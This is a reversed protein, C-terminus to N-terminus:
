IVVRVLFVILAAALWERYREHSESEERYGTVERSRVFIDDFAHNMEMGTQARYYRGGTREAIDQLTSEDFTTLMPQGDADTLYRKEGGRLGVPILAGERSGIGVCYVPLHREVLVRLEAKLEEGHDEGDSLLILVQKNQRMAPEGETQQTLVAMASKLAGGINTGYQLANQERLYDAYFLLNKPDGTLYSLVLSNDAFSVLGIRDGQLKKQVFAGIVETARFLRSPRIDEARMSPSTDLLIVADIRRLQAIQRNQVTQPRALAIILCGLVGLGLAMQIGRRLLSSPRSALSYPAGGLQRRAKRLAILARGCWITMALLAWGFNLNEPRLFSM